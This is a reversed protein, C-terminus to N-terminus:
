FNICQEYLRNLYLDDYTTNVFDYWDEFDYEPRGVPGTIDYIWEGIECAFHNAIPDYMIRPDEGKFRESLIVAFYYCNGKTFCDIVQENNGYNTFHNIFKLVKHHCSM